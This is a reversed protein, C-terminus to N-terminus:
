SCTSQRLTGHRLLPTVSLYMSNTSSRTSKLVKTPRHILKFSAVFFYPCTCWTPGLPSSPSPSTPHNYKVVKADRRLPEATCRTSARLGRPTRRTGVQAVVRSVFLFFINSFHTFSQVFIMDAKQWVTRRTDVQAVVRAVFLLFINPFISTYFIAVFLLFFINSFHTFSQVFIMDPAEYWSSGRAEDFFKNIAPKNGSKTWGADGSGCLGSVAIDRDDDSYVQNNNPHNLSSFINAFVVLSLIVIMTPTSLGSRTRDM